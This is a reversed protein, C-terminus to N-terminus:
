AAAVARKPPRSVFIATVFLAMCVAHVISNALGLVRMATSVEDHLMEGTTARSVLQAEVVAAVLSSLAWLIAAALTLLSPLRARGLCFLSVGIAVVLVLLMPLQFLLQSGLFSLGEGNM